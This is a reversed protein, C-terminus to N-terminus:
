QVIGARELSARALDRCWRFGDPLGCRASGGLREIRAVILSGALVVACLVTLQTNRM